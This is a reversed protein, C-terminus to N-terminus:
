SRFKAVPLEKKATLERWHTRIRQVEQVTEATMYSEGCSPCTIVPVGEILFTSRGSGCTKTIRRLRAGARGCLDCTMDVEDIV